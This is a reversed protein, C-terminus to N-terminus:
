RLTSEYWQLSFGRPPFDLYLSSSFSIPVVIFIPLMLFLLVLACIGYLLFQPMRGISEWERDAIM